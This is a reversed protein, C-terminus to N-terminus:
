DDDDDDLKADGEAPEYRRLRRRLEQVQETKSSLMKKLQMFQRSESLKKQSQESEEDLRSQLSALERSLEQVRSGSEAGKEEGSRAQNRLLSLEERLSSNERLAASADAQLRACREQAIRQGEEAKEKEDILRAHEDKISVLKESSKRRHHPPGDTRLREIEELIGRDEVVSTNMELTAGRQEAVEMLQKMLLATMGMLSGIETRASSKALRGVDDVIGEVDDISYMQDLLRDNKIDRIESELTSLAIERKTRMFRLYNHIQEEHEPSLTNFAM